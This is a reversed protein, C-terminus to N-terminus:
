ECKYESRLKRLIQDLEVPSICGPPSGWKSKVVTVDLDPKTARIQVEANPYGRKALEGLILNAFEARSKKEMPHSIVPQKVRQRGVTTRLLKRVTVDFSFPLIITRHYFAFM